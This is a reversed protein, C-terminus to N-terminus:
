LTPEEALAATMSLKTPPIKTTYILSVEVPSTVERYGGAYDTELFRADGLAEAVAYATDVNLVMCVAGVKLIIEKVM